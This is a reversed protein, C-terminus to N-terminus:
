SAMVACASMLAVSVALLLTLLTDFTTM